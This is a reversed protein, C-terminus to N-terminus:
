IKFDLNQIIVRIIENFGLTVIALYDGRLRLSPIGVGLGALAALIGGIVLAIAFGMVGVFGAMQYGHVSLYTTIVASTYAGVAMFGAHGLSFQGTFGNVLNLSVALIINIGIGIIVDLYYANIYGSGWSVLLCLVLSALLLTNARALM